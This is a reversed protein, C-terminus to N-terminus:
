RKRTVFDAVAAVVGPAIPLDPNAYSALNATRDAEGIQKLVHNVGPLLVLRADARAGALAQADAESIQIDNLGQVILLPARTRAALETPKYRLLDILYGQVAPNFLPMLAPSMGTTDVREGASLKALAADAQDFIPANAPNAHIQDHILTGFPRGSAFVLIFGCVDHEDGAALVVLGGESHGLLWICRAGTAAKAAKVWARVDAAYDAITVANPDTIAAKSAFQGRKDIRVSSIGRAALAAALLRYPAATVGYRNNGDRDTPGSGPVILVVPTGKGADMLTGHLPALPGPATIEQAAPAANVPATVALMLAAIPLNRFTM